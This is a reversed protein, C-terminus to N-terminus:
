WFYDHFLSADLTASMLVVKLPRDAPRKPLMDRLVMLLFDSEISREHVEDVFVHTVNQLTPDEELRKLLIGTTCFLLRTNPTAKSELRITYGVTKGIVEGREAAVREAVSMASIRRPQAIIINCAVDKATADMKPKADELVFQPVQTTKGSGTEGEVVTVRNGAITKLLEDKFNYVPLGRRQEGMPGMPDEGAIKPPPQLDPSSRQRNSRPKKSGFSAQSEPDAQQTNFSLNTNQIDDLSQLNTNSASSSLLAEKIVNHAEGTLGVSHMKENKEMARNSQQSAKQSVKQGQKQSQASPKNTKANQQNGANKGKGQKGGKAGGGGGKKVLRGNKYNGYNLPIGYKDTKIAGSSKSSQKKQSNM